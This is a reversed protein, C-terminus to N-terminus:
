EPISEDADPDPIDDNYRKADPAIGKTKGRAKDKLACKRAPFRVQRIEDLTPDEGWGGSDKESSVNRKLMM